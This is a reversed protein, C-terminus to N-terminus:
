RTCAASTPRSSSAGTPRGPPLHLAPRRGAAAIAVVVGRVRRPFDTAALREGIRRATLTPRTSGVRKGPTSTSTSTTARPCAPPAARAARWRRTSASSRSSPSSRRSPAIKSPTPRSRSPAAAAPRSPASRESRCATPLPRPPRAAMTRRLPAAAGPLRAALFGFLPHPSEVLADLHERPDATGAGLAALHGAAEEFLRRRTSDLVAREFYLYRAERAGDNVAPLLGQTEVILRDLLERSRDDAHVQDENVAEIRRRLLALSRGPRSTSGAARSSLDPLLSEHLAPTRELDTVGYHALARRLKAVFSPPLGQGRGSLDRLYAYFHETAGARTEAPGDADEPGEVSRRRFLRLLDLFTELVDDERRWRDTAVTAAPPRMAAADVDYGLVLSRLDDLPGREQAARGLADFRVRPSRPSPPTARWPTSASAAAQGLGVQTNPLVLVERVRGAQEAAVEIYTKMAELIVLRDGAAVVDGPKVAVSVVVAPVPRASWAARGRAAVRHPM